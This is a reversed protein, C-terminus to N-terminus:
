EREGYELAPIRGGSLQVNWWGGNAIQNIQGRYTLVNGLQIKLLIPKYSLPFTVTVDSLHDKIHRFEVKSGTVSTVTGVWEVQKLRYKFNVKSNHQRWLEERQLATTSGPMDPKSDAAEVVEEFTIGTPVEERVKSVGSGPRILGIALVLIVLGVALGAYKLCDSNSVEQETERNM